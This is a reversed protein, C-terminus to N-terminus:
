GNVHSVCPIEVKIPKFLHLCERKKSEVPSSTRLRKKSNPHKNTALQDLCHDTTMQTPCNNLNM